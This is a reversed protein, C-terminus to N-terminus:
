SPVLFNRWFRRSRCLVFLSSTLDMHHFNVRETLRFKENSVVEQCIFGITEMAAEKQNQKSVISDLLDILSVLVETLCDENSSTTETDLEASCIYALCQAASSPHVTESGLTSVLHNRIKTRHDAALSCWRKQCKQKCSLDRATLCNKLQLGASQRAVSSHKPNSLAKTM